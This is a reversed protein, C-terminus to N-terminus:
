YMSICELVHMYVCVCVRLVVWESCAVTNGCLICSVLPYCLQTDTALQVSPSTQLKSCQHHPRYSAASITIIQVTQQTLSRMCVLLLHRTHPHVKLIGKLHQLANGVIKARWVLDAGVAPSQIGLSLPDLQLRLASSPQDPEWM